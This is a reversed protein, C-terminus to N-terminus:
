DSLKSGTSQFLVEEPHPHYIIASMTHFVFQVHPMATTRPHLVYAGWVLAGQSFGGGGYLLGRGGEAKVFCVFATVLHWGYDM